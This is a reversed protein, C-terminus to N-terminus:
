GWQAERYEAATYILHTEIEKVLDALVKKARCDHEIQYDICHLSKVLQWIGVNEGSASVGEACAFDRLRLAVGNRLNEVHSYRRLYSRYNEAFLVSIFREIGGYMKNNENMSYRDFGYHNRAEVFSKLSVMRDDSAIKQLTRACNFFTQPDLMMVSM